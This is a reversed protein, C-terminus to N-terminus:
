KKKLRLYSWFKEKKIKAVLLTQFCSKKEMLCSSDNVKSLILEFFSLFFFRNLLMRSQRNYNEAGPYDDDFSNEPLALRIILNNLEANAFSFAPVQTEGERLCEFM